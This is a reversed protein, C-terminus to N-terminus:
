GRGWVMEIGVGLSAPVSEIRRIVRAITGAWGWFGRNDRDDAFISVFGYGSEGIPRSVMLLM